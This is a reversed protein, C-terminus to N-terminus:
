QVTCNSSSTSKKSRRRDPPMDGPIGNESPAESITMSSTSVASLDTAQSHRSRDADSAPLRTRSAAYRGASRDALAAPNSGSENTSRMSSTNPTTSESSISVPRERPRKVLVSTKRNLQKGERGKGANGADSPLSSPSAVAPEPALSSKSRRFAHMFKYSTPPYLQPGPTPTHAPRPQDVSGRPTALSFSGDSTPSTPPIIGANLIDMPHAFPSPSAGGNEAYQAYMLLQARLDCTPPAHAACKSHAILSCQECLVASKKVPELCVKCTMALHLTLVIHQHVYSAPKGKSFTTKVFTHDRPSMADNDGNSKPTTATNSM